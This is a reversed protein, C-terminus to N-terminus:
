LLVKAANCLDKFYNLFDVAMKKTPFILPRSYSTINIGVGEDKLYCIAYLYQKSSISYDWNGIWAKRLQRLQMLALFAEAEKSSICINKDTHMDRAVSSGPYLHINSSSDFYAEGRSKPYRECFEEWSRPHTSSKERFTAVGNEVICEWGESTIMQKTEM